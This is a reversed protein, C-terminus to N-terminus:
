PDMGSELPRSLFKFGPISGKLHSFTDLKKQSIGIQILGVRCSSDAPPCGPPLKKKLFRFSKPKPLCITSFNKSANPSNEALSDASNQCQSDMGKDMPFHIQKMKRCFVKTKLDLVGLYSGFIINATFFKPAKVSGDETLQIMAAYALSAGQWYAVAYSSLHRVSCLLPILQIPMLQYLSTGFM